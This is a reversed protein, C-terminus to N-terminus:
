VGKERALYGILGSIACLVIKEATPTIPVIMATMGMAVVGVIALKMNEIYEPM